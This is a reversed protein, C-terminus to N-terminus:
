VKLDVLVMNGPKLNRGLREMIADKSVQAENWIASIIEELEKKLEVAKKQDEM